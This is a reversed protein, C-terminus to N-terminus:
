LKMFSYIRQNSTGTSFTSIFNTIQESLTSGVANKTRDLILGYEKHCCDSHTNKDIEEIDDRFYKQSINREIDNVFDSCNTNDLLQRGTEEFSVQPVMIFSIVILAGLLNLLMIERSFVFFKATTNGHKGQFFFGLKIKRKVNELCTSNHKRFSFHNELNRNEVRSNSHFTLEDYTNVYGQIYPM